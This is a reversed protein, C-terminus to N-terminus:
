MAQELVVRDSITTGTTDGAPGSEGNEVHVGVPHRCEGLDILELEFADAGIECRAKRFAVARSRERSGRGAAVDTPPLCEIRPVHGAFL